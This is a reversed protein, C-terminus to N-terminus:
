FLVTDSHFNIYKHLSNHIQQHYINWPHSVSCIERYLFLSATRFETGPFFNRYLINWWQVPVATVNTGYAYTHWFLRLRQVPVCGQNIENSNIRNLYFTFNITYELRVIFGVPKSERVCMMRCIFLSLFFLTKLSLTMHVYLTHNWTINWWIPVNRM